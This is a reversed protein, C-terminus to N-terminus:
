FTLDTQEKGLKIFSIIGLLIVGAGGVIGVPLPGIFPSVDGITFFVSISAFSNVSGHAISAPLWSKTKITVFSFFAALVICWLIMAFIGLWPFFPYDLGYNHGMAIVPAHWLGWIAGSIIVSLRPSFKDMLKPLLYGRWGIEEGSTTIINLAPGLLLGMALQSIFLATMSGEPLAVGQAEYQSVMQSMTPDFHEPFILFYLIAGLGILISPLFWASLYWRVNGKLHPRIGFNKFGEKTILRTLITSIAPILMVASLMLLGFTSSLGGNAMMFFELSWTLAFCIGLFIYIRKM